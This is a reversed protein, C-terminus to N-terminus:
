HIDTFGVRIKLLGTGPIPGRDSRSVERGQFLYPRPQFAAVRERPVSNITSM